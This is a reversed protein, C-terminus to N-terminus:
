RAGHSRDATAGDKAASADGAAGNWGPVQPFVRILEGIRVIELTRAVNTNEPPVVLSLNHGERELEQASSILSGIVTSDIFSCDSLDVLVDGFLPRLADRLAGSTALDHEGHLSVVAAYQPARAPRVEVEIDSRPHDPPLL